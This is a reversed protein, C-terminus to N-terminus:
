LSALFRTAVHRTTPVHYSARGSFSLWLFKDRLV